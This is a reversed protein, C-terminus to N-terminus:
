DYLALYRTTGNVEVALFDTSISKSAALTTGAIRLDGSMIKLNEVFTTNVADATISTGSIHVNAFAGTNNGQGGAISSNLTSCVNLYGGSITAQSGSLTNDSGGAITGYNGSITNNQGGAIVARIGTTIENNLGGGVTGYDSAINNQHGGSIVCSIGSTIVNFFGGGVTSNLSGTISHSDGGSITGYNSGIVNGSGGSITARISANISNSAGGSVTSYKGNVTCSGGSTKRSDTGSDGVQVPFAGILQGDNKVEFLDTGLSNELLLATTGSTSGSGKVELQAVPTGVNGIGVGSPMVKLKNNAGDIFKLENGDINYTRTAAGSLTLNNTGINTDAGGGSAAWVSGDFEMWSSATDDYCLAGKIPTIPAAIGNLFRVWDGFTATGWGSDVVGSGTLVYVDLDATTPPAVTGDVFNIARPLEFNETYTSQGQEDKWPRTNNGAPDFGKPTHKNAEDLNLHLNSM